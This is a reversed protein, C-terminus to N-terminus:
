SEAICNEVSFTEFPEDASPKSERFRKRFGDPTCQFKKLLSEKLLEYSVVNDEALSHYLTLASGELLASLYTVWLSESWGLSRAHTEFRFLYSDIDDTKEKFPPLKPFTPRSAHSRPVSASQSDEGSVAGNRSIQLQIRKTEEIERQELRKTEEQVRKTEEIEKARKTEEIEKQELRKTEEEAQLRKVSMREERELDQAICREVYDLLAQEELGFAKGRQLYKTFVKDEEM